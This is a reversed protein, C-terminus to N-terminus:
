NNKSNDENNIKNLSKNTKDLDSPVYMDDNDQGTINWEEKDVPLLRRKVPEKPTPTEPSLKIRHPEKM